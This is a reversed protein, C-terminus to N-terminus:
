IVTTWSQLLQSRQLLKTSLASLARPGDCNIFDMSITPLIESIMPKRWSKSESHMLLLVALANLISCLSARLFKIPFCCFAPSVDRSCRATGLFNLANYAGGLHEFCLGAITHRVFSSMTFFTALSESCCSCKGLYQVVIAELYPTRPLIPFSSHM